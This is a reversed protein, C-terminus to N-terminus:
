EGMRQVEACNDSAVAAYLVFRVTSKQAEVPYYARIRYEGLEVGRIKADSAVDSEMEVPEAAPAHDSALGVDGVGVGLAFVIFVTVIRGTAGSNLPDGRM